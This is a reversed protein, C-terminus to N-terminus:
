RSRAGAEHNFNRVAIEVARRVTRAPTLANGLPIKQIRDGLWNWQTGIPTAAISPRDPPWVTLMDGVLAVRVGFHRIRTLRGHQFPLWTEISASRNVPHVYAFRWFLGPWDPSGKEIGRPVAIVIDVARADDDDYIGLFPFVPKLASGGHLFAPIHGPFNGATLLNGRRNNVHFSM